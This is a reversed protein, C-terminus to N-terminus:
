KKTEEKGQLLIVDWADIPEALEIGGDVVGAVEHAICLGCGRDKFLIFAKGGDLLALFEGPGMEGRTGRFLGNPPPDAEGFVMGAVDGNRDDKFVLVAKGEDLLAQLGKRGVTREGARSIGRTQEFYNRLEKPSAPWSSPEGAIEEIKGM